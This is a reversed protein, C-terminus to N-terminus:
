RPLSLSYTVWRTTVVFGVREYVGVAGTPSDADVGLSATARGAAAAAALVEALLAAALGRRRWPRRVGVQGIYLREPSPDRYSLVYGAIEDGDFAIRTLEPSFDASRVALAAWSEFDRYQYGFHDRFAEMHAAHLREDHRAEHAAIRLGDPVPVTPASRTPAEMDLFYRVPAFGAGKYLRAAGEDTSMAGVHVEWDAGPALARHIEGARRVQWGLLERGIGQGRWDPHVGGNADVRFGGSPPTPVMGAAVLTGDPALAVKSDTTPDALLKIMNAAFEASFMAHGGASEEIVNFLDALAPADSPLCPRETLKPM